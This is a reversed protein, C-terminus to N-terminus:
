IDRRYTEQVLKFGFKKFFQKSRENAPNINALFTKGYRSNDLIKNLVETGYNVRQHRKFLFLGIEDKYTIYISGIFIEYKNDHILFWEKYPKSRVFKVHEEYTPLEKHSINMYPEREKLLEYLVKEHKDRQSLKLTCVKVLSINNM